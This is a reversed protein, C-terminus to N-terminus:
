ASVYDTGGVVWQIDGQIVVVDSYDRGSYEMAQESGAPYHQIGLGSPNNKVKINWDGDYTIRLIVGNSTALFYDDGSPLGFEETIHGELEILDDSAGYVTIM